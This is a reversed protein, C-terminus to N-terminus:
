KVENVNSIVKDILGVKVSEEATLWTDRDCMKTMKKLTTKGDTSDALMKTLKDKLRKAHATAIEMDSVQGKTGGMVQHVMIEANPLMFRKGKAGQSILVSGMSACMGMGITVIDPKVYNMTDVLALGDLVSGGPSNIYMYIDSDPDEAELYLIQAIALGVSAENVEDHFFIIRDKLMRSYIDYSREGNQTQDVVMPVLANRVSTNSM